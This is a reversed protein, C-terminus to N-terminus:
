RCSHIFSVLRCCCVLLWQSYIFMFPLYVLSLFFFSWLEFTILVHNVMQPITQRTTARHTNSRLLICQNLMNSAFIPTHQTTNESFSPAQQSRQQQSRSSIVVLLKLRVTCFLIGINSHCVCNMRKRYLLLRLILTHAVSM